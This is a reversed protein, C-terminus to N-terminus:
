RENLIFKEIALAVGDETNAATHQFSNIARLEPDANAMIVATGAYRLMSLDNYNDGIAMIEAPTANIEAATAALGTAKSASPNLIDLLTFDRKPYITAYIKVADGLEQELVTRLEAMPACSGSFSLHIPDEHLHEDLSPVRQVSAHADTGHITESWHLYARLAHNAEHISEYLMVGAGHPDTSVLADAGAHRGVRVVEWAAARPLLTVSVTEFTHVHKTLAGNHSILPVDELGLQLVLPRADRFRRGTVVTVYVGAARAAQVAHKNRETLEGRPTLLTGDL